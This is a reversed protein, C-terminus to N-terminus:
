CFDNVEQIGLGPMKALEVFEGYVRVAALAARGDV